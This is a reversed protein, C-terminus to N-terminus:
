PYLRRYMEANRMVAQVYDRTESFPISEIFEAPERYRNGWALWQALRNPGANYAALTEPVDGGHQDLMSKLVAAGIKLSVKPQYLQQPSFRVLGARRAIGRATEPQVQTLGRADAHSRAGPNFESEQRILGAFLYPDLGRARAGAGLDGRWPLPYLMEWYRRPADAIPRLLYDGAVAKMDRLALYPADAQEAMEMGLLVPQGDTRIGFRLEGDALDPLGAARLLRSREIRMATPPTEHSPLLAPEPLKLEKLFRAADESAGAAAIAPERLRDRALMTYFSNPMAGALREYCARAYAADGVREAHRGLFYLAASTANSAPYLQLQERLMDAADQRDDLYAHFAVRWHYAGASPDGPFEEYAEQYLKVFEDPRNTVLWRNAANVTAKLRWESHPYKKAIEHVAEMMASDDAFRRACDEEYFLREADAESESLELGRLYPLALSLHGAGVDAAGIRVAAQDHQVGVLRPLLSEYESKAEPYQHAALLLDARALAQEPLPEPYAAGMTNKLDVLAAAARVAQDGSLYGYYVRQYFEVAHPLEQAAQYADALAIDGDPQPLAAYHDRLLRVADQPATKQAAQAEALWAKGALPSAPEAAHVKAAEAAVGGSEGAAARAAALYYAAYDAIRPAHAKELHAIADAYDQHEFEAVGLGLNALAADAPHAAAFAELAARAAPSPAQRYGRVLPALEGARPPQAIGIGARVSCCLVPIIKAWCSRMTM